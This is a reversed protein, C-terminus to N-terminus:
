SMGAAVLELRLTQLWQTDNPQSLSQLWRCITIFFFVIEDGSVSYRRRKIAAPTEARYGYDRMGINFLFQYADWFMRILLGGQGLATDAALVHELTIRHVDSDVQRGLKLRPLSSHAVGGKRRYTPQEKLDTMYMHVEEPFLIGGQRYVNLLQDSTMEVPYHLSFTYLPALGMFADIASPDLVVVQDLVHTESRLLESVRNLMSALLQRSAQRSRHYLALIKDADAITLVMSQDKVEDELRQDTWPIDIQLARMLDGGTVGLGECIRAASGLRVGNHANELRSLTAPTLGTSDAVQQLTLQRESRVARLWEGFSIDRDVGQM